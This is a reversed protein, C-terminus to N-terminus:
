PVKSAVRDIKPNIRSPFSTEGVVTERSYARVCVLEFNLIPTILQLSPSRYCTALAWISLSRRKPGKLPMPFKLRM